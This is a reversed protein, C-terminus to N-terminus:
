VQFATPTFLLAGAILAFVVQYKINTGGTPKVSRLFMSAVVAIMASVAYYIFHMIMSVETSVPADKATLYGDCAQRYVPSSLSGGSALKGCIMRLREELEAVSPGFWGAECTGAQSAIALAALAVAAAGGIRAM